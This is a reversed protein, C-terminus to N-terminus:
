KHKPIGCHLPSGATDRGDNNNSNLVYHNYRSHSRCLFVQCERPCWYFWWECSGGIGSRSLFGEHCVSWTRPIVRERSWTQCDSTQMKHATTDVRKVGGIYRKPRVHSLNQMQRPQHRYDWTSRHYKTHMPNRKICGHRWPSGLFSDSLFFLITLLFHLTWVLHMQIDGFRVEEYYIHNSDKICTSVCRSM